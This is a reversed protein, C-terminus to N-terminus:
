KYDDSLFFKKNILDIHIIKERLLKTGLIGDQNSNQFFYKNTKKDPTEIRIRKKTIITNINIQTEEFTYYSRFIFDPRSINNYRLKNKQKKFIKKFTSNKLIIDTDATAVDFVLNLKFNNLQIPIIIDGNEVIINSYSNYNNTSATFSINKKPFDISFFGNTFIDNGLFGAFPLKRKSIVKEKKKEREEKTLDDEIFCKPINFKLENDYKIQINEFYSLSPTGFIETDLLLKNKKFLNNDNIFYDMIFTVPCGTDLQMYCEINEINVIVLIGANKIYNNKTQLDYWEFDM